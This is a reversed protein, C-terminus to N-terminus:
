RLDQPLCRIAHLLFLTDFVFRGFRIIRVFFKSFVDCASRHINNTRTVPYNCNVQVIVNQSKTRNDREM